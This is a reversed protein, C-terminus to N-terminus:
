WFGYGQDSQKRAFQEFVTAYIRSTGVIGLYALAQRHAQNLLM